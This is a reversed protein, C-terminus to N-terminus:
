PTSGVIAQGPVTHVRECSGQLDCRDIFTGKRNASPDDDLSGFVYLHDNDAWRAGLTWTPADVTGVLKGPGDSADIVSFTGPGFGDSDKPIVLIRTGDPSFEPPEPEGRWDCTDWSVDHTKLRTSQLHLCSGNPDPTGDNGVTGTLYSGGPSVGMQPFGVTVNDGQQPGSPDTTEGSTPDWEFMQWGSHDATNEMSILVHQGLFGVYATGQPNRDWPRAAQTRPTWVVVKLNEAQGVVLHGSPDVDWGGVVHAFRSPTSSRTVWWLDYAAEQTSTPQAVVYGGAMRVVKDVRRLEGPGPLDMAITQDGDHVAKASAWLLPENTQPAESSSPTSTPSSGPSTSTGTVPRGTTVPASPQRSKNGLAVAAAVGGTTGLVAAVILAVVANRNM